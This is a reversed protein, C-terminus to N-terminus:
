LTQYRSVILRILKPYASDTLGFSELLDKCRIAMGLM